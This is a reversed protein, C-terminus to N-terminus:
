RSAVEERAEDRRRAQEADEHRWRIKLRLLLALVGWAVFAYVVVIVAFSTWLPGAGIDTLAEAVRMQEYVIWPQRGVEATVWGAELALVSLVGAVAACRYFWRSRPIDRRRVWALAYWFTLGLLLTAVGVMTDFAFHTINAERITPRDSEATASLGEVKTDRSFGALFSDLGPISIGGKVSGDPQLRGYLEEPQDQGTKWVIEMAAFKTPQHDYVTRALSDGIMFQM